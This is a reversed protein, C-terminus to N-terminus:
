SNERESLIRDIVEVILTYRQEEKRSRKDTLSLVFYIIACYLVTVFVFMAATEANTDKIYNSLWLYVTVFFSLTSLLIATANSKVTKSKIVCRVRKLEETDKFVFYSYFYDLEKKDEPKLDVRKNIFRDLKKNYYNTCRKNKDM